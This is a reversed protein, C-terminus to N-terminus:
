VTEDVNAVAFGNLNRTASAAEDYDIVAPIASHVCLQQGNVCIDRMGLHGAVDAGPNRHTRKERERAGNVWSASSVQKEILALREGSSGRM